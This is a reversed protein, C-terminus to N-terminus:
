VPRRGSARAGVPLRSAGAQGPDREFALEGERKIREHERLAYM